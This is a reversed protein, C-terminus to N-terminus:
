KIALCDGNKNYDDFAHVCIGQDVCNTCTHELSYAPPTMSFPLDLYCCIKYLFYASCSEKGREFRCLRAASTHLDRAMKQQPIYNAKRTLYVQEGINKLFDKKEMVQSNTKANCCLDM